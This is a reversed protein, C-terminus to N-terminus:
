WLLDIVVFKMVVFFLVWLGLFILVSGQESKRFHQIISAVFVALILPLACVGIIMLFFAWMM